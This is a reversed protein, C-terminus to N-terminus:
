VRSELSFLALPLPFPSSFFGSPQFHRFICTKQSVSVPNELNSSGKENLPFIVFELLSVVFSKTNAPSRSSYFLVSHKWTDGCHVYNLLVDHTLVSFDRLIDAPSKQLKWLEGLKVGDGERKGYRCTSASMHQWKFNTKWLRLLWKQHIPLAQWCETAHCKPKAGMM